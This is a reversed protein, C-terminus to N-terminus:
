RRNGAIHDMKRNVRTIGDRSTNTRDEIRKMQSHQTTLEENMSQGMMKLRNLGSSIQNLNSDIGVEVEDRELGAPTSYLHSQSGYTSSGRANLQPASHSGHGSENLMKLRDMREQERLGSQVGEYKKDDMEKSLKEERRKAAKSGFAPVM